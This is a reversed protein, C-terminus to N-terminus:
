KRRRTNRRKASCRKSTRRRRYGGTNMFLPYLELFTEQLEATSVTKEKPDSTKSYKVLWRDSNANGSKRTAEFFENPYPEALSLATVKSTANIMPEVLFPLFREVSMVGIIIERAQSGRARHFVQLEGPM